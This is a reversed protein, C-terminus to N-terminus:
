TASRPELADALQDRSTVGLKRYVRDLHTDVTRKSVTLKEAIEKSPLGAAALLAVEANAGPSRSSRLAACCPRHAFVAPRRSWARAADRRPPPRASHGQRRLVDALELAVEAASVVRDMGEFRDLADEYAARDM